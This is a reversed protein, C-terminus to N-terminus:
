DKCGQGCHHERGVTELFTTPFQAARHQHLSRAYAAASGEAPGGEDVIFDLGHRRAFRSLGPIASASLMGGGQGFVALATDPVRRRMAWQELWDLLWRPFVEVDHLALVILHADATQALAAEAMPSANLLDLRWLRANWVVTEDARRSARKLMANAVAALRFNNYIIAAKM